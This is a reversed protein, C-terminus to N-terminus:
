GQTWEVTIEGAAVKRRNHYIEIRLEPGDVIVQIKYKLRWYTQGALNYSKELKGLDVRKNWKISCLEKVSDTAWLPLVDSTCFYLEEEIDLEDSATLLRYFEHTSPSAGDLTDGKKLFWNMQNTAEYMEALSNWHKDEQRHKYSNWHEDQKFGYGMRCMRSQVIYNGAKIAKSGTVRMGNKGVTKHILAHRVAGRCVATWSQESPPNLITSDPYAEVLQKFLYSDLCIIQLRKRKGMAGDPLYGEPVEAFFSRDNGSFQSKIGNEWSDKMFKRKDASDLGKWPSGGMKQTILGDFNQDVFIGGCLGGEGTVCESLKFSSAKDVQYSILDATGGGADCVIIIDGQKIDPRPHMEALAALAAAEPESLFELTTRLASSTNREQLMGALGAASKMHAQVYHPWIAPVTMVIHLKCKDLEGSGLARTINEMCHKWLSRLFCAVLEIPSIRLREQQKRVQRFQPDKVVASPLDAEDLLLLKFWRVVDKDAPVKYGWPTEHGITGYQLLTPCKGRDSCGNYESEWNTIVHIDAPRKSIAWAAGSFTTGFDIGIIIISPM